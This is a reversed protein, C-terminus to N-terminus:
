TRGLAAARDPYGRIDVILADDVTFVQYVQQPPAPRAGEAQGSVALELVVADGDVEVGRVTATTSDALLTRYWDLVQTRNTCDGTWQVDPHLLSGLLDLDRDRYATELHHAIDALVGTGVSGPAGAPPEAPEDPAIGYRRLLEAVDESPPKGSVWVGDRSAGADILLRVTTLWDGPKGAQEGSGVTAFALPTADFRDDRADVGAGAALLQRVVAANGLYAATHLPQEGLENRVAPSFGLE